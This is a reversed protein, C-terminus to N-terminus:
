PEKKDRLREIAEGILISHSGFMNLNGWVHEVLLDALEANTKAELAKEADFCEFLAEAVEARREPSPVPRIRVSDPRERPYNHCWTPTGGFYIRGDGKADPHNCHLQVNASDQFSRVQYFRCRAQATSCEIKTKQHTVLLPGDVLEIGTVPENAV